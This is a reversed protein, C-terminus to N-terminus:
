LFFFSHHELDLQEKKKTGEKERDSDDMDKEIIRIKKTQTDRFSLSKKDRALNQKELVDNNKKTYYINPFLLLL